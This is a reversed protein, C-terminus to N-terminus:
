ESFANESLSGGRIRRVAPSEPWALLSGGSVRTKGLVLWADDVTVIVKDVRLRDAHKQGFELTTLGSDYAGDLLGEAIRMISGVSIHDPWASLDAYGRTAPQLALTRPHAVDRRTLIALEKSPSIFTDMVHIGHDFHARAVVEACDPHVAVQVLFDAEGRDIMALADFFDDILVVSAELGHFELYRHTVLEHNTGSPGLTV